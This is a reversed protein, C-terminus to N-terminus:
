DSYGARIPYRKGIIPSSGSKITACACRGHLTWAADGCGVHLTQTAGANGRRQKGAADQIRPRLARTFGLSHFKCTFVPFNADRGIM